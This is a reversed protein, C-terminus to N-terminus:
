RNLDGGSRLIALKFYKDALVKDPIKLACRAANKYAAAISLYNPDKVSLLFHSIANRYEGQRCLFVGYNNQAAGLSPALEIAHLYAQKAAVINGTREFFYGSIYWISPESPAQKQALLLKAKGLVADNQALYALALQANIEAAGVNEAKLHQVACACLFLYVSLLGIKKLM